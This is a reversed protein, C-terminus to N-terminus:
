HLIEGAFQLKKKDLNINVNFYFIKNNSRIREWIFQNESITISKMVPLYNGHRWCFGCIIIQDNLISTQQPM